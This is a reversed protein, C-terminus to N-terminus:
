ASQNEPNTIDNGCNQNPSQGGTGVSIVALADVPADDNIGVLEPQAPDTTDNSAASTAVATSRSAARTGAEPMNARGPLATASALVCMVLLIVVGMALQSKRM